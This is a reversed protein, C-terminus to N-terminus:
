KEMDYNKENNELYEEARRKNILRFDYKGAATYNKDFMEYGPPNEM